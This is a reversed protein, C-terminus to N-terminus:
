SLVLMQSCTKDGLEDLFCYKVSFADYETYVKCFFYVVSTLMTNSLFEFTVCMLSNEHFSSFSFEFNRM